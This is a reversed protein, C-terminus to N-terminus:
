PEKKPLNLRDRYRQEPVFFAYYNAREGLRHNFGDFKDTIYGTFGVAFVAACCVLSKVALDGGNRVKKEILWYTLWALAVSALVASIRTALSPTAGEVIHAFSLLPWHWLYLPFSILGIGVLVRNSLLKQNLWIQSGSMIIAAAATTPLVAWWGPFAYDKHIILASIAILAVGAFSLFLAVYSHPKPLFNAKHLALYALTSGVSLEWFRTLPSYFSAVTDRATIETNLLFSSLAVVATVALLNLRLKFMLFLLLPWIIYFQEEIGLSWLHLLPKADPNDFYGHERWLLFNSLFSAGGAVHKGLQKYEGPLLEFWGFVLSVILVISLAPIIRRIRRGYFTVFSFTGADLNELIISSILFGSIVFFIDVGIFGGDLTNPFAHFTVVLLVAIARLGDIESRYKPHTLDTLRTTTAREADASTANGDSAAVKAM